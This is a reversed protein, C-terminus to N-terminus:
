DIRSEWTLQAGQNCVQAKVLKAARCADSSNSRRIFEDAQDEGEFWSVITPGWSSQGTGRGGLAVVCDIMQAVEADRFPGGQIPEFLRGALRGYEEISQCFVDFDQKALSPIIWSKVLEVMRDRNPNPKNSCMRIWDRELEGAVRITSSAPDPHILVLKWDCPPSFTETRPQNLAHSGDASCNTGAEWGRDFIFGGHLFGTLGIFSRKGRRTCRQLADCPSCSAASQWFQLATSSRVKVDSSLSLSNPSDSNDGAADLIQSAVLATALSAAFQTGSGLGTHPPPSQIIQCRPLHLQTGLFQLMADHVEEIKSAHELCSESWQFWNSSADLNLLEFEIITPLSDVMVGLGGFRHPQGLCLEILGFHLRSPAWVRGKVAIKSNPEQHRHPIGPYDIANM